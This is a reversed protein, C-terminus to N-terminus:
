AATMRAPQPRPTLLHMSSSRRSVHAIHSDPPQTARHLITGKIDCEHCRTGCATHHPVYSADGFSEIGPLVCLWGFRAARRGLRRASVTHSRRLARYRQRLHACVGSRRCSALSPTLSSLLRRMSSYEIDCPRHADCSRALPALNLNKAIVHTLLLIRSRATEVLTTYSQLCEGRHCAGRWAGDGLLQGGINLM